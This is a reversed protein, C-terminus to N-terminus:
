RSVRTPFRLHSSRFRRDFTLVSLQLILIEGVIDFSTRGLVIVDIVANQKKANKRKNEKKRETGQDITDM